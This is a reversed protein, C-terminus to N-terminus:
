KKNILVDPFDDSHTLLLLKLYKQLNKKWILYLYVNTDELLFVCCFYSCLRIAIHIVLLFFFFFKVPNFFFGKQCRKIYLHLVESKIKSTWKIFDMINHKFINFINQEPFIYLVICDESYFSTMHYQVFGSPIFECVGGWFALYLSFSLATVFAQTNRRRCDSTCQCCCFAILALLPLM